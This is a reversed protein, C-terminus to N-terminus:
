DGLTGIDGGVWRLFLFVAVMLIAIIIPGAVITPLELLTFAVLMLAGSTVIWGRAVKPLGGEREIQTQIARRAGFEAGCQECVTVGVPNEAHCMHCIIWQPTAGRQIERKWFELTPIIRPSLRPFQQLVWEMQEIAQERDGRRYLEEAVAMRAVPNMPDQELVRVYQQFQADEM